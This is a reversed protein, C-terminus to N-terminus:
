EIADLHRQWLTTWAKNDKEVKIGKADAEALAKKWAEQRADELRLQEAQWKEHEDTWLGREKNTIPPM